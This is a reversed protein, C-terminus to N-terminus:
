RDLIALLKDRKQTSNATQYGQVNFTMIRLRNRSSAPNPNSSAESEYLKQRKYEAENRQDGYSVKRKMSETEESNQIDDFAEPKNLLNGMGQKIM